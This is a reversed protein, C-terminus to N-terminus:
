LACFKKILQVVTLNELFHSNPTNNTMKNTIMQM